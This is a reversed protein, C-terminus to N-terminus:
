LGRTTPDLGELCGPFLPVDVAILHARHVIVNKSTQSLASSTFSEQLCHGARPSPKTVCAHACASRLNIM